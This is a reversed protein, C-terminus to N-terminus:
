RREGRLDRPPPPAPPMPPRGYTPPPNSNPRIPQYGGICPATGRKSGLLIPVISLAGFIYATLSRGDSWDLGTAQAGLLTYCWADIIGVAAPMAFFAGLALLLYRKM